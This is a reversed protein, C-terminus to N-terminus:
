KRELKYGSIKQIEAQLNNYKQMYKLKIHVRVKSVVCVYLRMYIYIYIYITHVRSYRTEILWYNTTPCCINNM